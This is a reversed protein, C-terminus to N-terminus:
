AKGRRKGGLPQPGNETAIAIPGARDLAAGFQRKAEAEREPSGMMCDFCVWDGGPGYPRLEETTSKCYCCAKTM